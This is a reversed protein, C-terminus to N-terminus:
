GPAAPIGQGGAGRVLYLHLHLSMLQHLSTHPYKGKLRARMRDTFRAEMLFRRAASTSLDAQRSSLPNILPQRLFLTSSM